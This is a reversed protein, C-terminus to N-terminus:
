WSGKTSVRAAVWCFTMTSCMTVSWSVRGEAGAGVVALGEVSPRLSITSVALPVKTVGVEFSESPSVMELERSAFSPEM